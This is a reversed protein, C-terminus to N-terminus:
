TQCVKDILKLQKRRNHEWNSCWMGGSVAWICRSTDKRDPKSKERLPSVEPGETKFSKRPVSLKKM